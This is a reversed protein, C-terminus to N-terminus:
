KSDEEWKVLEVTIRPDDEKRMGDAHKKCLAMNAPISFPLGEDHDETVYVEITSDDCNGSTRVELWSLECRHKIVSVKECSTSIMHTPTLLCGPVSGDLYSVGEKVHKEHWSNREAVDKFVHRTVEGTIKSEM